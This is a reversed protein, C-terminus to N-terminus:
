ALKFQAHLGDLCQFGRLLIEEDSLGQKAWGKLIQDIGVGELRHFKDDRQDADHITEALRLVARERIAFLEILTEFTCCDIHRSFEAEMIVYPLARQHKAPTRAFVFKAEPDIFNHILWASGVRDIQPRPRTIWTKGQYEEVRLRGKRESEGRNSDLSEARRFLRELDEGRSSQFFDIDYIEQFRQHLKQLQNTFAEPSTKRGRTDRILLALPEAIEDYERARAENFMAVLAAYPMGEVDKVRVLAAEGENNVIEKALSQFREYHVPEDPLVYTSTKLQIAGFKKLRRWVKVRYSSHKAPLNFLLFLWSVPDEQSM